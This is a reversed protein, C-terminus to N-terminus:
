QQTPWTTCPDLPSSTATTPPQPTLWRGRRGALALLTPPLAPPHLGAPRVPDAAPRRAAPSLIFPLSTPPTQHALPTPRTPRDVHSCFAVLAPAVVLLWGPPWQRYWRWCRSLSSPPWPTAVWPTQPACGSRRAARAPPTRLAAAVRGRRCRSTLRPLHTSSPCGFAATGVTPRGVCCVWCGEGCVVFEWGWVTAAAAPGWRRAGQLVTLSRAMSELQPHRGGGDVSHRVTPLPRAAGVGRVGPASAPASLREPQQLFQAVTTAPSNGVQLCCSALPLFASSAQRSKQLATRLCALSLLAAPLPPM